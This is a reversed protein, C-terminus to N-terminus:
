NYIYLETNEPLYFNDFNISSSLAGSLKITFKGFAFENDYNWKIYKAIDLNVTIPTALRFPKVEISEGSDQREKVLLSDINKLPIVFDITSTYNKEFQGKSSIIQENNFITSVQALLSNAMFLLVAMPIYLIKKM